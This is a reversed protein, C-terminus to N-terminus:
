RTCTRRNKYPEPSPEKKLRPLRQSFGLFEFWHELDMMEVRLSKKKIGNRERTEIYKYLSPIDPKSVDVSKSLTKIRRARREATSISDGKGIRTSIFEQLKAELSESDSM